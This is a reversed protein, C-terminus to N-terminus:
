KKHRPHDMVEKCSRTLQAFVTSSYRGAYVSRMASVEKRKMVVYKPVLNTLTLAKVDEVCRSCTCLGFMKIYRDAKEEVLEEMVNIRIEEDPDPAPKKPAPAPTPKVAAPALAEKKAEPQQGLLLKEIEEQSLSGGSPASAKPAPAPASQQVEAAISAVLNAVANRNLETTTAPLGTPTPAPAPAPKPEEPIGGALLHEIDEQSMKGGSPAVPAPKPEEPIGGALLREIDEQSMKGGSPAAPAPAPKPEEGFEKMLAASLEDELADKIQESIQNDNARAVDLIPPTLPRQPASPAAAAPVEQPATEPAPEPQTVPEKEEGPATLLNLVHATKNSKTTKKAAAM